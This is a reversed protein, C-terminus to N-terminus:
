KLAKYLKTRKTLLEFVMNDKAIEWDPKDIREWTKRFEKPYIIM